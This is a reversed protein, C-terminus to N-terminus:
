SSLAYIHNLCVTGCQLSPVHITCYNWDTKSPSSFGCISDEYSNSHASTFGISSWWSPPSQLVSGAVPLNNLRTFPYTCPFRVAAWCCQCSSILSICSLMKSYYVASSYPCFSSHSTWFPHLSFKKKGGHFYGLWPYLFTRSDRVKSSESGWSPLPGFLGTFFSPYFDGWTGKWMLSEMIGSSGYSGFTLALKFCPVVNMM